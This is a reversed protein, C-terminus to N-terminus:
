GFCIYYDNKFKYYHLKYEKVNDPDVKLLSKLTGQKQLKFPSILLDRNFFVQGKSYIKYLTEKACWYVALKELNGGVDKQEDLSLVRKSIPLLKEQVREIDIGVEQSTHVIGAAYKTSHSLSIRYAGDALYPKGTANKLIGMYEENKQELIHKIVLRAAASERRKVEHEIYRLYFAESSRPALQQILEQSNEQIEWIGWTCQPNLNELHILPM